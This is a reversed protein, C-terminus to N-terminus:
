CKKCRITITEILFLFNNTQGNIQPSAAGASLAVTPVLKKAEVGPEAEKAHHWPNTHDTECPRQGEVIGVRHGRSRYTARSQIVTFRVQIRPRRM